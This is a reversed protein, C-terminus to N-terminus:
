VRCHGIPIGHAQSYSRMLHQLQCGLHDLCLGDRGDCSHQKSDASKMPSARRIRQAASSTSSCRFRAARMDDSVNRSLVRIHRLVLHRCPRNVSTRDCARRVAEVGSGRVGRGLALPSDKRDNADAGSKYQSAHRRRKPVAHRLRAAPRPRQNRVRSM